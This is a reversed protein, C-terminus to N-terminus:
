DADAQLAIAAGSGLVIAGGLFGAPGLTEGLAVVSVLTAVLPELYTLVAARQAPIRQLGYYFLASGVGGIFVAGYLPAGLFASLPPPPGAFPLLLLAAIACHYSLVESASFHQLARKSVLTNAAYFVASGFGCLATTIAPGSMASGSLLLGLGALAAASAYLTRPRLKERLFTPAALAVLVPALYHTLVALALPGRDVAAFYLIYNGADALGLWLLDLWRRAPRATSVPRGRPSLAPLLWLAAIVTLILISQWTPPLGSGRLFLAWLGWGAAAACVAATGLWFSRM